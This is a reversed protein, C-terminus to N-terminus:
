VYIAALDRDLIVRYGRLPLISSSIQDIPVLATDDNKTM